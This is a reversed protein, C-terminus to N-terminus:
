QILKYGNEDFTNMYEVSYEKDSYIRNNILSGVNINCTSLSKPRIVLSTNDNSIYFQINDNIKDSILIGKADSISVIYLFPSYNYSGSVIFSWSIYADPFNIKIIKSSINSICSLTKPLLGDKEQTAAGILEGM